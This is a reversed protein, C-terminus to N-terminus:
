EFVGAIKAIGVGDKAVRLEYYFVAAVVSLFAMFVAQVIWSGVILVDHEAILHGTHARMWNLVTRAASSVILERVLISVIADLGLILIFTGFIQWRYGKTLSRSRSLSARTGAQEAICAPAAVIYRCLVIIILPLIAWGLAADAIPFSKAILAFVTSALVLGLFVLLTLSIAVGIMPLFRRALANLTDLMLAPRGHLDHVVGYTVAGNALLSGVLFMISFTGVAWNPAGPWVVLVTLYFPSVAAAALSIFAAYHRRFLRFSTGFIFRLRVSGGAAVAM